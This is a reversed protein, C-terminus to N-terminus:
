KVNKLSPQARDLAALRDLGRPDSLIAMTEARTLVASAERLTTCDELKALGVVRAVDVDGPKRAGAQPLMARHAALLAPDAFSGNSRAARIPAQWNPPSRM